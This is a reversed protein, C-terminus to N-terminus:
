WGADEGKKGVVNTQEGAKKVVLVVIWEGVAMNEPCVQSKQKDESLNKLHVSAFIISQFTPFISQFSPNLGTGRFNRILARRRSKVSGM